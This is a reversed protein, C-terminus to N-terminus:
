WRLSFLARKTSEAGAARSQKRRSQCRSRVGMCGGVWRGVWGGVWKLILCSIVFPFVSYSGLEKATVFTRNVINGHDFCAKILHQGHLCWLQEFVATAKLLTRSKEPPSKFDESTKTSKESRIKLLFIAPNEQIKWIVLYKGSKQVKNKM